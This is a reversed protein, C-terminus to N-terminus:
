GALADALEHPHHGFQDAVGPRGLGLRLGEDDVAGGGLPGADLPVLVAVPVHQAALGDPGHREGVEGLGLRHVLGLAAELREAHVLREGSGAGLRAVGHVDALQGEVVLVVLPHRGGRCRLPLRPAGAPLSSATITTALIPVEEMVASSPVTSSAAMALTHASAAATRAWPWWTTSTVEPAM